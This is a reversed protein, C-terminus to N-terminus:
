IDPNQKIRDALHRDGRKNRKIKMLISDDIQKQWVLKMKVLYNMQNSDIQATLLWSDFKCIDVDFELSFLQWPDTEGIMNIIHITFNDV